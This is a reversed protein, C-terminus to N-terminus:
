PGDEHEISLTTTNKTATTSDVVTCFAFSHANCEHPSRSNM